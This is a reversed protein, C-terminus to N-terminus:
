APQELVARVLRGADDAAEEYRGGVADWWGQGPYGQGARVQEDLRLVVLQGKGIVSEALRAVETDPYMARLVDLGGAASVWREWKQVMMERGREHLQLREVFVQPDLERLAAIAAGAIRAAEERRRVREQQKFVFYSGWWTLAGGVASSALAVLATQWWVV